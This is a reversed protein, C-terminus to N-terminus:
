VVNAHLYFLYKESIQTICQNLFMSRAFLSVDTHEVATIM